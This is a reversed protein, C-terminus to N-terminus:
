VPRTSAAYAAQTRGGRRLMTMRGSTEALAAELAQAIATDIAVLEELAPLEGQTLGELALCEAEHESWALSFAQDDGATLAELARRGSQLARELGPHDM